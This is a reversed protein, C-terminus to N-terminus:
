WPGQGPGQGRGQGPAQGPFGGGQGGFPSSTSDRTGCRRCRRDDGGNFNPSRPGWQHHTRQDSRAVHCVECASFQRCRGRRAGPDLLATFAGAIGPEPLLLEDFYYWQFAHGQKTEARACRRCVREQTCANAERPMQYSWGPLDHLTRTKVDPCGTCRYTQVCWNETEFAWEGTHFGLGHRSKSLFGMMGAEQYHEIRFGRTPACRM